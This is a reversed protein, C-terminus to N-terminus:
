RKAMLHLQESFQMKWRVVEHSILQNKLGSTNYNFMSLPETDPLARIEAEVASFSQLQIIYDDM